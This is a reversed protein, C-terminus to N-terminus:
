PQEVPAIYVNRFELTGTSNFTGIWVRVSTASGPIDITREATSWADTYRGPLSVSTNSLEQNTEDFFTLHMRPKHYGEPGQVYNSVRIDVSCLLKKWTPKLLIPERLALTFMATDKNPIILSVYNGDRDETVRVKNAHDAGAFGKAEWGAPLEGERESFSGEFLINKNVPKPAATQAFALPASLALLFALLLKM